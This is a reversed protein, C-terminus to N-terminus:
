LRWLIQTITARAWSRLDRDHPPPYAHAEGLAFSLPYVPQSRLQKVNHSHCEPCEVKHEYVPLGGITGWQVSM